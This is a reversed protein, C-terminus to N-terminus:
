NTNSVIKKFAVFSTLCLCGFLFFRLVFIERNLNTTFKSTEETEFEVVAMFVYNM